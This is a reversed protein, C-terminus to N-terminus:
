ALNNRLAADRSRSTPTNIAADHAHLARPRLALSIRNMAVIYRGQQVTKTGVVDIKVSALLRDCICAFPRIIAANDM